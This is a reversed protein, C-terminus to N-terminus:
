ENICKEDPIVIAMNTELPNQINFHMIRELTHILNIWVKSAWYPRQNTLNSNNAKGIHNVNIQDGGINWELKSTTSDASRGPNNTSRTLIMASMLMVTWDPSNSV